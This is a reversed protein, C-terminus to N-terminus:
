TGDPIPEQYPKRQKQPGSLYNGFDKKLAGAFIKAATEAVEKVTHRFTLLIFRTFPPYNFHRRGVLENDFVYSLRATTCFEFGM